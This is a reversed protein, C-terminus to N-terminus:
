LKCAEHVRKHWRAQADDLLVLFEKWSRAVIVPVGCKELMDGFAIQEETRKEKPKKVEVGITMGNFFAFLDPGGRQYDKNHLGYRIFRSSKRIAGSNNRLIM